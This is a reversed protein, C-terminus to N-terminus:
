VVRGCAVRIAAALCVLDVFVFSAGARRDSDWRPLFLPWARNCEHRHLDDNGGPRSYKFRARLVAPAGGFKHETRPFLRSELCKAVDGRSRLRKAGCYDNTFGFACENSKHGRDM